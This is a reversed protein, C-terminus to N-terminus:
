NILGSLTLPTYNQGQGVNQNLNTQGNTNINHYIAGGLLMEQCFM